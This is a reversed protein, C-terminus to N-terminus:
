GSRCRSLSRSPFLPSLSRWISSSITPPVLVAPLPPPPTTHCHYRHHHHYHDVAWVRQRLSNSRAGVFILSFIAAVAAPFSLDAVNRLRSSIKRDASCARRAQTERRKGRGDALTYHFEQFEFRHNCYPRIMANKRNRKLSDKLPNFYILFM